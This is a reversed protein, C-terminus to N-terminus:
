VITLLLWKREALKHSGSMLAAAFALGVWAAVKRIGSVLVGAASLGTESVV